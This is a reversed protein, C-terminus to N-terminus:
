CSDFLAISNLIDPLTVYSQNNYNDSTETERSKFKERYHMNVIRTWSTAPEFRAEKIKWLALLTVRVYRLHLIYGITNDHLTANKVRFLMYGILTKTYYIHPVFFCDKTYIHLYLCNLKLRVHFLSLRNTAPREGRIVQNSGPDTWTPNTTSLTASPCTKGRTIRNKGTLKM